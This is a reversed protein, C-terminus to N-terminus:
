PAAQASARAEIGDFHVQWQTGDGTLDFVAPATLADAEIMLSADDPGHLAMRDPLDHREGLVPAASPRWVADEVSWALFRYGTEDWVLALPAADILAEDRALALRDALRRAESEPRASRDSGGIALISAGAAIEVVALVLLTEILTMGSERHRM